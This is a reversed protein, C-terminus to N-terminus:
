VPWSSARVTQIWSAAADPFEWTSVGANWGQSKAQSVCGALTAPAIYGNNADGTNAPKGIVVKSEPVGSAIIQFVASNPWTSSSATLLGACTTYETSGQNYFQINYWDILSGVQQNVKLYGGGPWKNPSFWPAVPAHTIIYSGSPLQSRLQTTFSILWNEATGADMANFDEYDVDVGDLSYQKVWAAITNATAVPDNGSSTPVDTSGFVSVMLKIGAAAYQSKVASRQAATLTTWEYAKDWAGETLLFSLLFVNFGTIASADPPGTTGSVYKDGYVVWHPPAPTARAVLERPTLDALADRAQKDLGELPAPSAVATTLQFVFYAVVLAAVRRFASSFM